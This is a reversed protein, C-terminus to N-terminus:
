LCNCKLSKRNNFQPPGKKAVELDASVSTNISTQNYSTAVDYGDDGEMSIRNSARNISTSM